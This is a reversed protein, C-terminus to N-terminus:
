RVDGTLQVRSTISDTTIPSPKPPSVTNAIRSGGVETCDSGRGFDPPVCAEESAEEYVGATAVAVVETRTSSDGGAGDPAGLPKGAASMSVGFGFPVARPEVPEDGADGDVTDGGDVVGVAAGVAPGSFVAFGGGAVSLRSLAAGPGV